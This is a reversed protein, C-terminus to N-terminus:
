SRNIRQLLGKGAVFRTRLDHKPDLEEGTRPNRRPRSPHSHRTFVGFDRLEVRGGDALGHEVRHLIADVVRRAAARGLFAFDSHLREVLEDKTM